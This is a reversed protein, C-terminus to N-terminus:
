RRRDRLVCSKRSFSIQFSRQCRDIIEERACALYSAIGMCCLAKVIIAAVATSVAPSKTRGDMLLPLVPLVPLAFVLFVSLLMVKLLSMAGIKLLFQASHWRGPSAAGNEARVYLSTRGQALAIRSLTALRSIGGQCASGCTPLHALSRRIVSASISVTM